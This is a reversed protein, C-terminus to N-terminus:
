VAIIVLDLFNFRLSSGSGSGSMTVLFSRCFSGRRGLCFKEGTSRTLFEPIFGRKEMSELEPESKAAPSAEQLELLAEM